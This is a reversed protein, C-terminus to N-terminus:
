SAKIHWRNKIWSGISWSPAIMITFALLQWNWYDLWRYLRNLYHCTGWRVLWCESIQALTGVANFPLFFYIASLVFEKHFFMRWINLRMNCIFHHMPHNLDLWSVFVPHYYRNWLPWIKKLNKSGNITGLM